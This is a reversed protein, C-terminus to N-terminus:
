FGCGSTRRKLEFVAFAAREEGLPAAPPPTLLRVEVDGNKLLSVVTFIPGRCTSETWAVVNHEQADDFTMSSLSDHALEPVSILPADQFFAEPSCRGNEADDSTLTGPTTNLSDVDVELHLRLNREFGGEDEVTRVFQANIIAGCYAEDGTTDFRDLDRCGLEFLGLLAAAALPGSGTLGSRSSTPLSPFAVHERRNLL